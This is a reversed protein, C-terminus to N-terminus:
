NTHLTIYCVSNKNLRKIIKVCLNVLHESYYIHENCIFYITDLSFFTTKKGFKKEFYGMNCSYGYCRSATTHKQELNDFWWFRMSAGAEQKNYLM